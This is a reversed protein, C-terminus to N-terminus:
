HAPTTPFAGRLPACRLLRSRRGSGPIISCWLRGGRLRPRSAGRRSRPHAGARGSGRILDPSWSPRRSPPSRNPTGPRPPPCPRSRGPASPPTKAARGASSGRYRGRPANSECAQFGAALDVAAMRGLDAPGELLEPDLRDPGIRRLGSATRLAREPRKLAPQGLLELEGPDCRDFRRVGKNALDVQGGVVGTERNRRRAFARGERGNGADVEVLDQADLLLPLDAMVIADGVARQLQLDRLARHPRMEDLRPDFDVDVGVAGVGDKVPWSADASVVVLSGNSLGFVGGLDARRRAQPFTSLAAANGVTGRPLVFVSSASLQHAVLVPCSLESEASLGAGSAPARPSFATLKRGRRGGM